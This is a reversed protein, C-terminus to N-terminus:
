RARDERVLEVSDPLEGYQAFIRARLRDIGNVVEKRRNLAGGNQGVEDLLREVNELGRARAAAELREYLEDPITLTRSM